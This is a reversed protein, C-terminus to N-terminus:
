GGARNWPFASPLLVRVSEAMGYDPEPRLGHMENLARGCVRFRIEYWSFGEDGSALQIQAPEDSVRRRLSVTLETPFYCAAAGCKRSFLNESDFDEDVHVKREVDILDPSWDLQHVFLFIPRWLNVDTQPYVDRSNQAQFSILFLGM